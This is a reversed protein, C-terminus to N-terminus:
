LRLLGPGGRPLAAAPRRRSGAESAGQVSAQPGATRVAHVSKESRVLRLSREAGRGCLLFCFVFIRHFVRHCRVLTILLRSGGACCSGRVLPAPLEPAPVAAGEYVACACRPPRPLSLEAASRRTRQPSQGTRMTGHTRLLVVSPKTDLLQFTEKMLDLLTLFLKEKGKQINLFGLDTFVM